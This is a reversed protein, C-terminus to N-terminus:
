IYYYLNLNQIINQQIEDELLAICMRRTPPQQYYSHVEKIVENVKFHNLFDGLDDLYYYIKRGLNAKSLGVAITSCSEISFIKEFLPPSLVSQLRTQVKKQQWQNQNILPYVEINSVGNLNLDFNIHLPNGFLLTQADKALNRDNLLSIAAEQQEPCTTTLALDISSESPEPRLDVGIMFGDSKEYDFDENFFRNCLAYDLKLDTRASIRELFDYILKLQTPDGFDCGMCFRAPYLRDQQIKCSIEILISRPDIKNELEYILQEFLNFGYLNDCGFIHSQQRIFYLKETVCSSRDDSVMRTM